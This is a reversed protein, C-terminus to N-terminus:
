ELKLMISSSQLTKVSTDNRKQIISFMDRWRNRMDSHSMFHPMIEPRRYTSKLKKLISFLSALLYLLFSKLLYGPNSGMVMADGEKLLKNVIGLLSNGKCRLCVKGGM